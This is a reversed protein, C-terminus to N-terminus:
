SKPNDRFEKFRFKCDNEYEQLKKIEKLILSKEQKTQCLTLRIQLEMNKNEIYGEDSLWNNLPEKM